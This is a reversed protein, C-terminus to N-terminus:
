IAACLVAEFGSSLESNRISRSKARFSLGKSISSVTGCVLQRFRLFLSLNGRASTELSRVGRLVSEFKCMWPALVDTVSSLLGRRAVKDQVNSSFWFVSM